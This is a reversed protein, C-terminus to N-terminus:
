SPALTSRAPSACCNISWRLRATTSTRSLQSIACTKEFQAALAQMRAADVEVRRAAAAEDAAGDALLQYVLFFLCGLLLFHFLPERILIKM